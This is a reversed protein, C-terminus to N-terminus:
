LSQKNTLKFIRPLQFSESKLDFSLNSGTLDLQKKQCLEKQVNRLLKLSNFYFLHSDCTCDSCGFGLIKESANKGLMKGWEHEFRAGHDSVWVEKVAANLYDIHWHYSTKPTIHHKIRSKLGGPGFASGVYAYYGKQFKLYGLKGIQFSQVTNLHLVIVYTGKGDHIDNKM